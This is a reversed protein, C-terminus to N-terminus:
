NGDNNREYQVEGSIVKVIKGNEDTGVNEIGSTPRIRVNIYNTQSQSVTPLECVTDYADQLFHLINELKQSCTLKNAYRAYIDFNQTTVNFRSLPAGRSVIWVGEKPDGNRDLPMEEWFLDTDIAGFDEEELLALMHLTIM